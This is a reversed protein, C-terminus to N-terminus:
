FKTQRTFATFLGAKVTRSSITQIPLSSPTLHLDSVSSCALSLKSFRRKLTQRNRSSVPVYGRLIVTLGSMKPDGNNPLPCTPNDLMTEYYYITVLFWAFVETDNQYLSALCTTIGSIFIETEWKHKWTWINLAFGYIYEANMSARTYFRIHLAKDM